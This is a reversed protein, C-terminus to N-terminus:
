QVNKYLTIKGNAVRIDGIYPPLPLPLANADVGAPRAGRDFRQILTPIMSGPVGIAGIKAQQIQFEGTGPKVVRLTGVFLVPERKGLVNALPGLASSGIESLDVVSRLSIHDGSVMAQISDASAPLKSALTRFVYSAVDAGSLTQFVPGNRQSLKDLAERTRDAGADSLPQWTPAKATATTEFYSRYKEPMWRDRTFWGVVAACALIFLCGLRAICGM